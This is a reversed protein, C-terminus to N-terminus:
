RPLTKIFEGVLNITALEHEWSEADHQRFFPDATTVIVMDLEHLLVILQGGHGWAFDFRHDGAKASWWQYGYGGEDISLGWNAPFGGTMNIDNTYSRLSDKVWRTSVIQKGEHKGENLYLLGFKAADRTTFHLLSYYIGHDDKWFEGMEVGMPSLLHEVAYSELDADCSRAVIAGLLYSTLNSYHFEDGPDSILPYKVLLPLHNGALLAEWLVPDSEEWPYGARMELLQRVTIQMKRPDKVQDALEPFFEMMKQDLGTLCGRDLAIGVLASFYSKSVSQLLAKQDVTGEHFYKEAVLHGNKVVVLGYLTELEAANYYLQAVLM